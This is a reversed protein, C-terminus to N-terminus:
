KEPLVDFLGNTLIQKKVYVGDPIDDHQWQTEFYNKEKKNGVM